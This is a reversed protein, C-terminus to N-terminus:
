DRYIGKALKAGTKGKALYLKEVTLDSFFLILLQRLRQFIM